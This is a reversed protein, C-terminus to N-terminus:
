PPTIGAIEAYISRVHSAYRGPDHDAQIRDLCAVARTRVAAPDDAISRLHEYVGTHIARSIEATGGSKIGAAQGWEDKPLRIVWGVADTNIEELACVNTTIVPTGCAQAELVSFGYTDDYTPLLAVHADRLLALVGHNPVEGHLRVSSGMAKIKGEVDARDQPTSQTAYDGVDLSSVIDLEIKRGEGILRGVADVVERGGKRFFDRGVFVCRVVGAALTKEDLSRILLPQPPHLVDLKGAIVGGLENWPSLLREQAARAYTSLALLRRCRPGALLRMGFRSHPDWRPMYHEFSAIWPTPTSGITNVFHFLHRSPLGPDWHFNNTFTTAHHHGLVTRNLLNLLAMPGRTPILEVGPSPIDGLLRQAVYSDGQVGIRLVTPM